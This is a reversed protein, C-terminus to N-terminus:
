FIKCKSKSESGDPQAEETAKSKKSAEKIAKSDLIRLGSKSGKRKAQCQHLVYNFIKNLSEDDVIDLDLKLVDKGFANFIRKELMEEQFREEQTCETSSNNKLVVVSDVKSEELYEVFEKAEKMGAPNKRNILILFCDIHSMLSPFKQINPISICCISSIRRHYVFHCSFFSIVDYHEGYVMSIPDSKKLQGLYGVQMVTFKNEDEPKFAM